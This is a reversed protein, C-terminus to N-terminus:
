VPIIKIGKFTTHRKGDAVLLETIRETGERYTYADVGGAAMLVEGEDEAYDAYLVCFGDPKSVAEITEPALNYLKLRHINPDPKANKEIEFEIQLPPRIEVVKGGSKGVLLRYVRNFNCM